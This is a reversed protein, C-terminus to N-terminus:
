AGISKCWAPVLKAAHCHSSVTDGTYGTHVRLLSVYCGFKPRGRVFSPAVPILLGAPVTESFNCKAGAASAPSDDAEEDDDWVDHMEQEPANEISYDEMAQSLATQSTSADHHMRSLSEIIKMSNENTVANKRWAVIQQEQTKELVKAQVRMAIIRRRELANADPIQRLIAKGAPCPLDFDAEVCVDQTKAGGYVHFSAGIQKTQTHTCSYTTLQRAKVFNIGKRKPCESFPDPWMPMYSKIFLGDKEAKLGAATLHVPNEKPACPLELCQTQDMDLNEPSCCCLPEEMHVQCSPGNSAAVGAFAEECQLDEDSKLILKKIGEMESQLENAQINKGDATKAGLIGGIEIFVNSKKEYDKWTPNGSPLMKKHAMSYVKASSLFLQFAGGYVKTSGTVTCCGNHELPRTEELCREKSSQAVYSSKWAKFKSWKGKKEPSMRCCLNAYKTGSEVKEHYYRPFGPPFGGEKIKYDPCEAVSNVEKCECVMSDDLEYSSQRMAHALHGCLVLCLLLSSRSAMPRVSLSNILQKSQACCLLFVVQVTAFAYLLRHSVSDSFLVGQFWQTRYQADQWLREYARKPKKKKRPRPTALKIKEQVELIAQEGGVEQLKETLIKVQQTLDAIQNELDVKERWFQSIM